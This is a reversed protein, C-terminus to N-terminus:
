KAAVEYETDQIGACRSSEQMFKAKTEIRSIKGATSKVIWREPHVRVHRPAIGIAALVSQLIRRELEEAARRSYEGKLEAVVAITETGLQEDTLGFAVARGPYVGPLSNVVGEVDEPFVNQGGVIIIDKMRGVVFLEGSSLFGYDGTAYWGDETFSSAVYGDEGWYGRFLSRTSLEINGPTGEPCPRNAQDRIRVQMGELPSGSSVYDGNVTFTAQAREVASSAFSSRSHIKWDSGVPTQTVAFVNEAMAYSAQVSAASIGWEAFANVFRSISDLRVPESCNILSRVHSLSRVGRMRSRQMAMYSFAFNPLWSFTARHRELCELLLDPKLLWDSAAFQLSAAQQWLPLWFCAILGMDHYLPLWSVVGDEKSFSLAKGLRTLQETLIRANIVVCKQAGTTGGSFQLFLSDIPLPAKRGPAVRPVSELSVRPGFVDERASGATVVCKSVPFPLLPALNDAIGPVTILQAAPLSRLQHFLNRQYKGADVRKTPWALIAPVKGRLVLGLHLLFLEVSHPLLLLVVGSHDDAFRSTIEDAQRLLEPGTFEVIDDSNASLLVRLLVRNGSHKLKNRVHARFEASTM